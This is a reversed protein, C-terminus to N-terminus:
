VTQFTIETGSRRVPVYYYMRAALLLFPAELMDTFDSILRQQEFVGYVSWVYFSEIPLFHPSYTSRLSECVLKLMRM